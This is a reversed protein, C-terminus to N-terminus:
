LQTERVGRVAYAGAIIVLVGAALGGVFYLANWKGGQAQKQARKLDSSLAEVQRRRMDEELKTRAQAARLAANAEDLKLQLEARKLEVERDVRIKCETERNEREVVIRAAAAPNLLTGTFPVEDGKEVHTARPETNPVPVETPSAYAVSPTAIISLTLLLCTAYRM